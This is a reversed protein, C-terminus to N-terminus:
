GQPMAIIKLHPNGINCEDYDNRLTQELQEVTTDKGINIIHYQTTKQLNFVAVRINVTYLTASSSEKTTCEIQAFRTTSKESDSDSYSYSDKSPCCNFAKFFMASYEIFSFTSQTIHHALSSVARCVSANHFAKTLLQTSFTASIHSHPTLSVFICFFPQFFSITSIKSFSIILVLFIHYWHKYVKCRIGLTVAFTTM